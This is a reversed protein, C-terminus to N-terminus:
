WAFGGSWPILPKVRKKAYELHRKETPVGTWFVTISRDANRVQMPKPESGVYKMGNHQDTMDNQRYPLGQGYLYENIHQQESKWPRRSHLYEYPITLEM